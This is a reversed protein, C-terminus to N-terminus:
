LGINLNTKADTRNLRNFRALRVEGEHKMPGDLLEGSAALWIRAMGDSSITLVLKGGPSFEVDNVSSGHKMPTGIQQYTSADWLM